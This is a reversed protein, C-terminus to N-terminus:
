KKEPAAAPAAEKKKEFTGPKKAEEMQIKDGPTLASAPPGPKKEDAAFAMSVLGLAFILAMMLVIGKKM